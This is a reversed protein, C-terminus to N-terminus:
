DLLEHDVGSFTDCRGGASAPPARSGKLKCAAEPQGVDVGHEAALGVGLPQELMQQRKAVIEAQERLLVVRAGPTLEAVEPLAERVDGQDVGGAVQDRPASRRLLPGLPRPRTTLV